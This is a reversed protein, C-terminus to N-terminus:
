RRKRYFTFGPRCFRPRSTKGVGILRGPSNPSLRLLISKGSCSVQSRTSTTGHGISQTGIFRLIKLSVLILVVKVGKTPSLGRSVISGFTAPKSVSRRGGPTKSTKMALLELFLSLDVEWTAFGEEFTTYESSRVSSKIPEVFARDKCIEECGRHANNILITIMICSKPM